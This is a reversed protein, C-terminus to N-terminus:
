VVSGSGPQLCQYIGFRLGHLATRLRSVVCLQNREGVPRSHYYEGGSREMHLYGGTGWVGHEGAFIQAVLGPVAGSTGGVLTVVRRFSLFGLTITAGQGAATATSVFATGTTGQTLCTTAYLDLSGLNGNTIQAVVPAFVSVLRSTGCTNTVNPQTLIIRVSGNVPTGDPNQFTGTITVQGSASCALLAGIIWFWKRVPMSWDM